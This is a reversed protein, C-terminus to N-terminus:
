IKELTSNLKKLTVNLVEHNVSYDVSLDILSIGQYVIAEALMSAFEEDSQPRFGKGGYSEIYRVFDPNGYNLGFDKFGMGKQKWQIMGYANDNLIVITLSIGLRHATEIEQSNMMFGGDGCVTVVEKEPNVLKVAIASALGVGMSALANDLLLTNHKYTTYNRAFWIKYIGNDLTVIGDEPMVDRMIKVVRQPLTPFRTDSAYQETHELVKNKVDYYKVFDWQSQKGVMTGLQIMSEKIDGVVNLQPFYIKDIVAESFSVHIIKRGHYKGYEMLFPPKEVVHHGVNIIVDSKKILNHLFDEDSLAATGLYCPHREDVVGNGMQTCIFPIGTKEIFQLIGDPAGHRNSGEGIIVLPTKAGRIMQAAKDLSKESAVPIDNEVFPFIYSSDESVDESAIDEPLEIHVPGPRESEALRFSERITSSIRVGDVIQQTKKTIPRMMNVVNIIQFLGQKSKRIPKQGSIVLMPMGGLYAYAVATIFNTAGPGLTSLCVGTRGTLRGYTAAMFGATQEHRTLIFKIRSTRISELLDLNEEGPVGFIYEVGENELASVFIDSAKM